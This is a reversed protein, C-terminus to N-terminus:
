IIFQMQTFLFDISFHRNQRYNFTEDVNMAPDDALAVLDAEKGGQLRVPSM